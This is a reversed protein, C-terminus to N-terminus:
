MKDGSGEGEGRLRQHVIHVGGQLFSYHLDEKLLPGAEERSWPVVEMGWSLVWPVEHAQTLKYSPPHVLHFGSFSGPRGGLWSTVQRPCRRGGNHRPVLSKQALWGIRGRRVSYCIV